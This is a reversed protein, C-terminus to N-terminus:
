EKSTPIGASELADIIEGRKADEAIEVNLGAKATAALAYARWADTSGGVKSPIDLDETDETADTAVEPNEGDGAPAEPTANEGSANETSTGEGEQEPNGKDEPEPTAPPEDWLDPNTIAKEAWEPVEDNPGLVHARGSRDRVITTANLKSM